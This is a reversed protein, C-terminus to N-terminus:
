IIKENQVNRLFCKSCLGNTWKKVGSGGCRLCEDKEEANNEKACGNCFQVENKKLHTSCKKCFKM